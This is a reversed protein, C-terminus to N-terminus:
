PVNETEKRDKKYQEDFERLVDHYRANMFEDLGVGLDEVGLAEESIEPHNDLVWDDLADLWAYRSPLDGAKRLTV